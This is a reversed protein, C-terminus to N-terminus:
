KDQPLLAIVPVKSNRVVRQAVSGFHPHGTAPQGHGHTAMVISDIGEEAAFDLITQAPEGKRIHREFAHCGQLREDCIRTLLRSAFDCERDQLEKLMGPDAEGYWHDARELNQAVYSLHVKAKHKRALELVFSLAANGQGSLDTPWPISKIEMNELGDITVQDQGRLRQM